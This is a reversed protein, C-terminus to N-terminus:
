TSPVPDLSFRWADSSFHGEAYRSTACESCIGTSWIANRKLFNHLPRMEMRSPERVLAFLLSNCRFNQTTASPSSSADLMIRTNYRIRAHNRTPALLM